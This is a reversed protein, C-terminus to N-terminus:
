DQSKWANLKRHLTRRSIGLADAAKSKNGGAAELAALIQQKETDALTSTPTFVANSTIPAASPTPAASDKGSSYSLISIEKEDTRTLITM